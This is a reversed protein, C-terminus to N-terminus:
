SCRCGDVPAVAQPGLPWVCDDRRKGAAMGSARATPQSCLARLYAAWLCLYGVTIRLTGVAMGSARAAPQSCLARLYAAWPCLYDVTIRLAAAQM